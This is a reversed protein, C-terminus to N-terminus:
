KSPAPTAASANLQAAIEPPIELCAELHAIAAAREEETPLSEEQPRRLSGETQPDYVQAGEFDGFADGAEEEDEPDPNREAGEKLLAFLEDVQADEKPVLWLMSAPAPEDVHLLICREASVSDDSCTAHMMIQKFTLEFANEGAFEVVADKVNVTFEGLSEESTVSNQFVEFRM